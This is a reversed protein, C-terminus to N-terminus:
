LKVITPAHGTHPLFRELIDSTRIKLSSTNMCPHCGFYEEELLDADILLRVRKQTDHMLGLVSVSGPAVGLFAQMHEADAFSLRSSGIQASLYKTKFPKDGPMLLLYFDTKRANCLFLNKCIRTGLAEDVGQCAEITMAAEHDVREYEIQLADLLDYVALEVATRGADNAPRGKEPGCLMQM